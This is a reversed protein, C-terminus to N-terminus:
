GKRREGVQGSQGIKKEVDNQTGFGDGPKVWRYSLFPSLFFGAGVHKLVDQQIEYFHGPFQFLFM